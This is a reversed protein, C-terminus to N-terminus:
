FGPELDRDFHAVLRRVQAAALARRLFGAAQRDPATGAGALIRVTDDLWQEMTDAAPRLELIRREVFCHLLRTRREILSRPKEPIAFRQFDELILHGADAEILIDRDVTGAFPQAPLRRGVLRKEDEIHFPVSVDRVPKSVTFRAKM